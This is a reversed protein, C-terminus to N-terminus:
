AYKEELIKTLNESKLIWSLDVRFNSHDGSRQTRGMLFDSDKVREFIRRFCEIIEDPSEAQWFKALENARLRISQKRSPTLKLCAVCGPTCMGNYLDVIKEYPIQLSKQPQSIKEVSSQQADNEPSFSSHHTADNIYEQEQEQEQEQYAMPYAIGNAMGYAMCDPMCKRFAEAYGEGRQFCHTKASELVKSLLPCEPLLDISNRWSLVVKPNDPPNYKLFNKVWFLGREDYEVIGVDYLERYRIAYRKSDLGLEAAVSSARMPIAGIMTMAPATLLYMFLLKAESSFSSFKADNWIRPDIKRYRAM